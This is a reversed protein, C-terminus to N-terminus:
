KEESRKKSNGAREYASGNLVGRCVGLQAAISSQQPLISQALALAADFDARASYTFTKSQLLTNAIAADSDARRIAIDQGSETDATEHSRASSQNIERVITTMQIFGRDPDLEAAVDAISVLTYFKLNHDAKGALEQAETLWQIARTDHVLEKRTHKGL